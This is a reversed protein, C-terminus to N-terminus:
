WGGLRFGLRVPLRSGMGTVKEARGSGEIGTAGPQKYQKRACPRKNACAWGSGDEPEKAWPQQEERPRARM